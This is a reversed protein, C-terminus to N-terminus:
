HTRIKFNKNKKSGFALLQKKSTEKFLMGIVIIVKKPSPICMEMTVKISKPKVVV